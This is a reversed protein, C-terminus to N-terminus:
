FIVEGAGVRKVKKETVDIITSPMGCLTSGGDLALDVSDLIEKEVEGFSRPAEKGHLNASTTIIPMDLEISLKRMFLHEPVRVGIKGERVVPIDKKAKMILTTAGPFAELVYKMDEGQADAYERVMHINGLLVSFPCDERQKIKRIREAVEGRRGDGGIGYVTDTPYVIVGGSELVEKARAFAREYENELSITEGM